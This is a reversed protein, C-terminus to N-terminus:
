GLVDWMERWCVANIYFMRENHMGELDYVNTPWPTNPPQPLTPSDMVSSTDAAEAKPLALDASPASAPPITSMEGAEAVQGQSANNENAPLSQPNLDM